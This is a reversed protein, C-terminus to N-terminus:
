SSGFVRSNVFAAAKARQRRYNATAVDTTKGTRCTFRPGGSLEMSVEAGLKIAVLILRSQDVTSALRRNETPRVEFQIIGDCSRPLCDHFVLRLLQAPWREPDDTSDIAQKISTKVADFKADTCTAVAFIVLAVFIALAYTFTLTTRAKSSICSPRPLHSISESLEERQGIFM